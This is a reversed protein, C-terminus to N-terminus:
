SGDLCEKLLRGVVKPNARGETARMIQGVFYGMLQIKGSRYLRVNQVEKDVLDAVLPRLTEVDSIQVLGRDEIIERPSGGALFTEAFVQKASAASVVEKAVAMLLWAFEEASLKIEDASKDEERFMRLGETLIWSSVELPRAGAMCTREFFDALSRSDVLIGAEYSALGYERRFRIMRAHPLEIISSKMTGIWKPDLVLPGLDPEPFYRYDPSEEKTRMSYTESDSEDWYRTEQEIEGDADLIESQRDIEFQLARRVFKFSNLNKLEVKSGMQGSGSRAVSINADCRLAGKEMDGSCIGLQVVIRKLEQLFAEADEPSTLCPETVIEALPAGCRNLDVLTENELHISKGADEELHIRSLQVHMERDGSMFAVSGGLGLPLGHQTIQYGKPLDPYFYNKREFLSEVQLRGELAFVLRAALEEARSNLVPLAGPLGLCTPCTRTNPTEGYSTACSCFLKSLTLLQVHVELGISVSYRDQSSM